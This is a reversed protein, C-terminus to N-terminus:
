IIDKCCSGGRKVEFLRKASHKFRGGGVEILATLAVFNRFKAHFWQPLPLSGTNGEIDSLDEEQYVSSRLHVLVGGEWRGGGFLAQECGCFKSIECSAVSAFNILRHKWRYWM